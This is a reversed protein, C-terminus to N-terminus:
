GIPRLHADEPVPIGFGPADGLRLVGDVPGLLRPNVGAVTGPV